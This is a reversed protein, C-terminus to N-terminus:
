RRDAPRDGACPQGGQPHQRGPRLARRARGRGGARGGRGKYTFTSNRAIVFLEHFRSLETIIDETIGDTFYEQEPDGAMNTFPLITISPKDPLPPPAALGPWDAASWTVRWARVPRDINKLALSGVDEFGARLRGAV